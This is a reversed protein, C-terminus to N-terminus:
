LVVYDNLYTEFRTLVAFTRFLSRLEEVCRDLEGPSESYLLMNLSGDMHRYLLYRQSITELGMVMERVSVLDHNELSPITVVAVNFGKIISQNLLPFAISLRRALLTDMRQEATRISIKSESAIDSLRTRYIDRYAINRALLMLKSDVNVESKVNNFPLVTVAVGDNLSNSLLNSQKVVQEDNSYILEASIITDGFTLHEMAGFARYVHAYHIMELFPFEKMRSVLKSVEDYRAGTLVIAKRKVVPDSPLFVVKRVYGAEFLENFHRYVSSPHFDRFKSINYPTPRQSFKSLGQEPWNWSRFIERTIDDMEM